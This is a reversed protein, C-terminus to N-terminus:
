CLPKLCLFMCSMSAARYARAEQRLRQAIANARQLDESSPRMAPNMTRNPMAMGGPQANNQPQMPQMGSPGPVANMPTQRMGAQNAMLQQQRQQQQMAALANMNNNAKVGEHFQAQASLQRTLIPRNIDIMNIVDQPVNMARLQDSSFRSWNLLQQIKTPDATNFLSALGQMNNHLGEHQQAGSPNSPGAPPNGSNMDPQQAVPGTQQLKKQLSSKLYMLDFQQLYERYVHLLRNAIAPGSRPPDGNLQVFGM